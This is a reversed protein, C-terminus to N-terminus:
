AEDADEIAFAKEFRQSWPGPRGNGIPAGDLETIPCAGRVANTAVIEQARRLEDLDLVRSTLEPIRESLLERALGAVAGLRLDPTHPHGGEDIVVLNTRAGEVLNGDGDVLISEDVGAALSLERAEEYLKRHLLKAGSWADPGSHPIPAVIARWSEPEPGLTRAEAEIRVSGNGERMAEVRVIGTGEGFAHRGLEDFAQRVKELPVEGIDVNRADRQIRRLHRGLHLPRGGTVRATTYCIPDPSSTGPELPESVIRGGSWRLPSGDSM